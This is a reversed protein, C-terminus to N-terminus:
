QWSSAQENQINQGCFHCYCIVAFTKTKQILSIVLYLVLRTEKSCKPGSGM